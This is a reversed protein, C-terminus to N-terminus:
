AARGQRELLGVRVLARRAARELADPTRSALVGSDIARAVPPVHPVVELLPLQLVEAIVRHGITRTAEEVVVVGAARRVLPARVARRVALYCDRVVVISIDSVEVIAELAECDATSVDAVTVRDDHALVVGLAAGAEPAATRATGHGLPLLSVGHGADVALRDLADAPTEAGAALWEGLGPVPEGAVGLVAPLDGGFDALRVERRRALVLACTAAFVSTGAGGKPSWFSLLVFLV